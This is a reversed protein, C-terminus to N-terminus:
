PQVADIGYKKGINRSLEKCGDRSGNELWETLYMPEGSNIKELFNKAMQQNINLIKNTFKIQRKSNFFNSM